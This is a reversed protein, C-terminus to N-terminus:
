LEHKRCVSLLSRLAIFKIRYNDGTNQTKSIRKNLHKHGLNPFEGQSLKKNRLLIASIETMPGKEQGM